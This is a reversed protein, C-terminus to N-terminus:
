TGIGLTLLLSHLEARAADMRRFHTPPEEATDAPTADTWWVCRVGRGSNCVPCAIGLAAAPTLLEVLRLAARERANPDAM